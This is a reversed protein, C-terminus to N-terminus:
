GNARHNPDLNSAACPYGSACYDPILDPAARPYSNAPYPGTHRQRDAPRAYACGHSRRM